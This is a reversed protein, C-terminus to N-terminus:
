LNFFEKIKELIFNSTTKDEQKLSEKEKELSEEETYKLREELKKSFYDALEKNKELISQLCDQDIKLVFSRQIAKATIQRRDGTFFSLEGFFSGQEVEEIINESSGTRDSYIGIKGDIVVYLSDGPDYRRFIYEEEDYDEFVSSAIVKEKEEESLPSLFKLNQITERKKETEQFAPEVETPNLFVDTIPFPIKLGERKFNFWINRHLRTRIKEIMRYNSIWFKISYRISYDQYEEMLIRPEPHDLIGSVNDLCKKLTDIVRTPPAEYGANVYVYQANEPTPKSLNLIISSALKNNPYTVYQNQINILRVTRWNIEMVRGVKGDVSIFDGITFTRDFSLAIGAIVNSLTEQLALGIIATILASTTVLATLNIQFIAGVLSIGIIVYLIGVALDKLLSPVKIKRKMDLYYEIVGVDLINIFLLAWIPNLIDGVYTKYNKFINMFTCSVHFAELLIIFITPVLIKNYMRNIREDDATPFVFNLVSKIVNRFIYYGALTIGLVQMFLLFYLFASERGRWLFKLHSLLKEAQGAAIDRTYPVLFFIDAIYIVIALILIFYYLIHLLFSIFKTIQKMQIFQLNRIWEHGFLSSTQDELDKIHKKKWSRMIKWYIFLLITLLIIEVIAIFLYKRSYLPKIEILAKKIEGAWIRALEAKSKAKYVLVDLDTVTLILEDEIYIGVWEKKEVVKVEEPNLSPKRLIREIRNNIIEVRRKTSINGLTGYLPFLQRQGVKVYREKETAAPTAALGSPLIIKWIEGSEPNMRVNVKMGSYMDERSAIGGDQIITFDRNLPIKEGSLTVLFNDQFSDFTVKKEHYVAELQQVKKDQGLLLTVQDGKEVKQLSSKEFKRDEVSRIFVKANKPIRFSREIEGEKLTLVPPSVTTTVRVVAGSFSGIIEDSYPSPTSSAQGPEPTEAGEIKTDEPSPTQSITATAEGKMPPSVAQQLATGPTPSPEQACVTLGPFRFCFFMILTLLMLKNIKTIVNRM